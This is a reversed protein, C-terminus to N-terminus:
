TSRRQAAGGATLVRRALRGLRQRLSYLRDTLPGIRYGGALARAEAGADDYETRHFEIHLTDSDFFAYEAFKHEAKRAADVSGPNIFYLRDDRLTLPRDIPLERVSDGDVEYVKQMHVHGFFCISQEPFDARMDAANPLIQRPGVLYQQVDRIGAHTVLVRADIVRHSPLSRLYAVTPPSIARRTRKLSYIAKNACRDFGLRGISILDHNGAVTLAGWERMLAACGDSDANYGVIDGVCIIREVGRRRCGALVALLAERNGHIDGLVGYLAM